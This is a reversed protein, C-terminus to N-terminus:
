NIVTEPKTARFVYCSIPLDPSSNTLYAFCLRDLSCCFLYVINLLDHEFLLEDSNASFVKINNDPFNSFRLCVDEGGFPQFLVTEAIIWRLMNKNYYKDLIAFGCYTAFFEVNEKFNNESHKEAISKLLVLRSLSYDSKRRLPTSQFLKINEDAM